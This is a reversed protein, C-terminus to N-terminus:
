LYFQESVDEASIAQPVKAGLRDVDVEYSQGTLVSAMRRELKLISPALRVQDGSIGATGLPGGTAGLVTDLRYTGANVGSAITITTDVALLGWDRTTDEVVNDSLARLTGSGGSSVTYAVPTASAGSLLARTSLVRYTGANAGALVRLAAGVRISAFSFSTDSFLTRDTLTSGASGVISKSGLCWKRLDAYYYPEIDWSNPAAGDDALKAFADKFLYSYAYLVHAPKLAALVLAANDQTVFPDTPFGGSATEIFVDIAFQDEITYAGDPDRPPTELYREVVTAIFTSDLAELGGELSAKTAGQMLLLVMKHLFERYNLDGSIQPIGTKDTAGPFVFSGIMEWLFDTRTFDWASDKYIEATNIQIDALQEAMAQFQLSYWPGNTSAVYNSPLLGRFASMISDVLARKEDLYDQGPSVPNPAPNQTLSFPILSSVKLADDDHAM